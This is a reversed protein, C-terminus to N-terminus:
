YESRGVDPAYGPDPARQRAARRRESARQREAARQREYARQRDAARQREYQRQSEAEREAEMARGLSNGISNFTNGLMRNQLQRSQRAHRNSMDRQSQRAAELEARKRELAPNSDTLKRVCEQSQPIVRDQLDKILKATEPTPAKAHMRQTCVLAARAVKENCSCAAKASGTTKCADSNAAIDAEECPEVAYVSSVIFLLTISLATKM